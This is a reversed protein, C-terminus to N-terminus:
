GDFRSAIEHAKISRFYRVQTAIQAAEWGLELDLVHLTCGGNAPLHILLGRTIDLDAHLQSREGTDADYRQGNAYTAIQVTTAFPFAPESKGTKLDAVVVAGDPLRVLRDFTGAAQVVDNVVFCEIDLVTLTETAAKYADLRLQDADSVFLVEQGRDMAETLSHFGTGASAGAGAGAADCAERCADNFASKTTKDAESDRGTALVGSLRTMLDPRMLLGQATKRQKWSMLNNIDDLAKSLTSVRTYAIPDGGHTPIILPRDWRDRRIETMMTMTQRETLHRLESLPRNGM